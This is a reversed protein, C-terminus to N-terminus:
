PAEQQDAPPLAVMPPPVPAPAPSETSPAPSSPAPSSPAEPPPPTASESPPPPPPPPPALVPLIGAKNMTFGKGPPVTCSIAAAEALCTFPGLSATQGYGLAVAGSMPTVICRNVLEVAPNICPDLAGTASMTVTHSREGDTWGCFVGDPNTRGAGATITCGISQNPSTFSCRTGSCVPQDATAVPVPPGLVAAGLVAAALGIRM